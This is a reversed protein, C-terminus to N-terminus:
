SVTPSPPPTTAKTTAISTLHRTLDKGGNVTVREGEIVREMKVDTKSRRSSKKEVAQMRLMEEHKERRLERRAAAAESERKVREAHQRIREEKATAAAM